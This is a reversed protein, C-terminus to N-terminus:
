QGGLTTPRMLYAAVRRAKFTLVFAAGLDVASEISLSLLPDQAISLPQNDGLTLSAISVLRILAPVARALFVWFGLAICAVTAAEVGSMRSNDDVQTPAVLKHAVTLPFRWLALAVVVLSLAIVYPTFGRGSARQGDLAVGVGILQVAVVLLWIAFLRVSLGVFQQPKM